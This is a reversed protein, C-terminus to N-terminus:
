LGLEAFAAKAAEVAEDKRKNFLRASNAGAPAFLTQITKEPPTYTPFSV